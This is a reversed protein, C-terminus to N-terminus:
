RTLARPLAKASEKLEKFRSIDDAFQARTHALEDQKAGLARQQSRIESVNRVIEEAARAPIAPATPNTAYPAFRRMQEELQAERTNLQELYQSIIRAQGELIELRRDRLSEIEQVSLYTALLNQDRQQRVKQESLAREDAAQHAEDAAVQDASRRGAITGVPLGQHNLVTQEQDAYQAPVADGFHVVGKEDTWKYLKGVKDQPGASAAAGLLSVALVIAPGSLRLHPRKGVKPTRRHATARM